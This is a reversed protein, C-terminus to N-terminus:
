LYISPVLREPLARRRPHSARAYRTHPLRGARTVLVDLVALEASSSVIAAGLCRPTTHAVHPMPQLAIRVMVLRVSRSRTPTHTWESSFIPLSAPSSALPSGIPSAAVFSASARM